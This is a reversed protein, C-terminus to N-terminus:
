LTGLTALHTLSTPQVRFGVNIVLLQSLRPTALHPNCLPPNRPLTASPSPMGETTSSQIRSSMERTHLLMPLQIARTIVHAQWSRIYVDKTTTHLPVLCLRTRQHRLIPIQRSRLHISRVHSSLRRLPLRRLVMRQRSPPQHSVSMKPLLDHLLPFLVLLWRTHLCIVHYSHTAINHLCCQKIPLLLHINSTFLWMMALAGAAFHM